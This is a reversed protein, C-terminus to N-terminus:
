PDPFKYFLDGFYSHFSYEKPNSLDIIDPFYFAFPTVVLADSINIQAEIIPPQRNHVYIKM